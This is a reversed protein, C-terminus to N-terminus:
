WGNAPDNMLDLLLACREIAAGETPVLQFGNATINMWRGADGYSPWHPRDCGGGGPYNDLVLSRIYDQMQFAVTPSRVAPDTPSTGNGYWYYYQDQGHQAPPISMEYRYANNGFGRAMFYGHCKFVADGAFSNSATEFDGPYALMVRQITSATPTKMFVRLFDTWNQPSSVLLYQGDNLMGGALVKQINPDFKGNALLRFAVDPVADGDPIPGGYGIGPGIWGESASLNFILERNM